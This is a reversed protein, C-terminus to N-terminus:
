GSADKLAEVGSSGIELPMIEQNVADGEGKLEVLVAGVSAAGFRAGIGERLSVTGSTREGPSSGEM